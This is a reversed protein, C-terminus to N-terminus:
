LHLHYCYCFYSWSLLSPYSTFWILYFHSSFSMSSKMLYKVNSSFKWPHIALHFLFITEQSLINDKIYLSSPLQWEEGWMLVFRFLHFDIAKRTVILSKLDCPLFVMWVQLCLCICLIVATILKGAASAMYKSAKNLICGWIYNPDSHMRPLHFSKENHLPEWDRTIEKTRYDVKNSILIIM